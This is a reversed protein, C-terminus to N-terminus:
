RKTKAGDQHRLHNASSPQLGGKTAYITVVVTIITIILYIRLIVITTVVM